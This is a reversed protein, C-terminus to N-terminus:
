LNIVSWLAPQSVMHSINDGEEEGPTYRTMVAMPHDRREENLTVLAVHRWFLRFGMVVSSIFVWGEALKHTSFYSVGTIKLDDINLFLHYSVLVEHNQVKVFFYPFCSVIAM